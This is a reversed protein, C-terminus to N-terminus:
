EVTITMSSREVFPYCGINVLHEQMNELADNESNKFKFRVKNMQCLFFGEMQFKCIEFVINNMESHLITFDNLDSRLITSSMFTGGHITVFNFITHRFYLNDMQVNRFHCRRWKIDDKFDCGTIKGGTFYCNMFQINHFCCGVFDCNEFRVNEIKYSGSLKLEVFNTDKIEKQMTVFVRGRKFLVDFALSSKPNVSLYQCLSICIIEKLSEDIYKDKTLQELEKIAMCQLGLDVDRLIKINKNVKRILEKRRKEPTPCKRKIINWVKRGWDLLNILNLIDM